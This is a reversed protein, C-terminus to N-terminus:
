TPGLARFLSARHEQTASGKAAQWQCGTALVYFIANLAERLNVGRPRGGRRGPPIMPEVLAWEADSMDSPYCLGRRGAAAIRHEATWIPREREFRAGAM